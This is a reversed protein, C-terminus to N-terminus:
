RFAMGRRKFFGSLSFIFGSVMGLLMVQSDIWKFLIAKVQFLVGRSRMQSFFTRWHFYFLGLFIFALPSRALAFYLALFAWAMALVQGASAHSFSKRAQVQRFGGYRVFLLSFLFPIVFNNKLLGALTYKKLHDVELTQDLIVKKGRRNLRMGAESDSVLSGFPRTIPRFYVMEERRVAWLSGYLFPVESPQISFIHKMYFNKYDSFFSGSSKDPSLIGTLAHINPDEFRKLVKEFTDPRVCVDADVFVFIPSRALRAGAFRPEMPGSGSDIRVCRCNFSKAIDATGDMSGDDVVIVEDPLKSSAFVAQLCVELTREMNRAPIIVSFSM